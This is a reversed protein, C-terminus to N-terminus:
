FTDLFFCKLKLNQILNKTGLLKTLAAKLSLTGTRPLGPCIVELGKSGKKREHSKIDKFTKKFFAPTLHLTQFFDLKIQLNSM